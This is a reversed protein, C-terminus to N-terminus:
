LKQLKALKIFHSGIGPGVRTHPRSCNRCSGLFWNTALAPNTDEVCSRQVNIVVCCLVEENTSSTYSRILSVSFSYSTMRWRHGSYVKGKSCTLQTWWHWCIRENYVFEYTLIHRTKRQLKPTRCMLNLSIYQWYRLNSTHVPSQIRQCTRLKRQMRSIDPSPLRRSPLKQWKPSAFRQRAQAELPNGQAWFIQDATCASAWEAGSVQLIYHM